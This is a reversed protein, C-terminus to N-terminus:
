VKLRSVQITQRNMQKVTPRDMQSTWKKLISYPCINCINFNKYTQTSFSHTAHIKLLYFIIASKKIARTFLKYGKAMIIAYYRYKIVIM